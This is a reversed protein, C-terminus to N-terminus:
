TEVMVFLYINKNKLKNNSLFTRIPPAFTEFWCPRGIIINDYKSLDVNYERLKPEKTMYVQIGGWIFRFLSKIKKEKEVVLKLIDAGIEEKIYNALQETNGEYSCYVILSKM